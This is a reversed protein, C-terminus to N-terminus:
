NIERYSKFFNLKEIGGRKKSPLKAQYESFLEHM